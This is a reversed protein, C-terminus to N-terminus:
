DLMEDLGAIKGTAQFGSALKKMKKWCKRCYTRKNKGSKPFVKRPNDPYLKVNCDNCRVFNGLEEVEEVPLVEKVEEKEKKKFLKKFFGM